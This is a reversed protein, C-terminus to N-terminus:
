QYKRAVLEIFNIISKDELDWNYEKSYDDLKKKATSENEENNLTDIANDYATSDGGFMNNIYEFKKAISIHTKIDSIPSNQLKKRLSSDAETKFLDNLSSDEEQPENETDDTDFSVPEVEMNTEEEKIHQIVSEENSETENEEEITFDFGAQEEQKEDEEITFDFSPEDNESVTTTSEVVEEQKVQKEETAENLIGKDFAKFRLILLREYLDRSSVVLEELERADLHGNNLDEISESLHKILEQTSKYSTKGM